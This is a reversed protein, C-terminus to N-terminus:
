GQAWLQEERRRTSLGFLLYSSLPGMIKEPLREPMERVRYM